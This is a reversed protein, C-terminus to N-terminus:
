WDEISGPRQIEAPSPVWGQLQYEMSPIDGIPFVIRM